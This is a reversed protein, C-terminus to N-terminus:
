MYINCNSAGRTEVLIYVLIYFLILAIDVECVGFIGWEWIIYVEFMVRWCEGQESLHILVGLVPEAGSDILGM